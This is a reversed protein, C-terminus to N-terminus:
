APATVQLVDRGEWPLMLALLLLQDFERAFREIVQQPEACLAEDTVLGFQVGGAYSIISVGVGVDGSSPVWFISQRVTAGCFRIPQAPGPVNTMVATTKDLFLNSLAKQGGENLLGSVGLIAYSLLPQYGKKLEEMRQHVVGLRELPNEIGVPVLLPVLGFRNGLRWADDLSRM